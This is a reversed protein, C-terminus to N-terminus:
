GACNWRAGRSSSYRRWTWTRSPRAGISLRPGPPLRCADPRLSQVPPSRGRAADHRQMDAEAPPRSHLAHLRWISARSPTFTKGPSESQDVSGGAWPVASLSLLDKVIADMARRHDEWRPSSRVSGGGATLLRPSSASHNTCPGTLPEPLRGHLPDVDQTNMACAGLISRLNLCDIRRDLQSVSPAPIVAFNALCPRGEGRCAVQCWAGYTGSGALVAIAEEGFSVYDKTAPWKREIQASPCRPQFPKM